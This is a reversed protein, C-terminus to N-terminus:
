AEPLRQVRVPVEGRLVQAAYAERAERETRETIISQARARVEAAEIAQQHSAITSLPSPGNLPAALANEARLEEVRGRAITSAKMEIRLDRNFTQLKSATKRTGAIVVNELGAILNSIRM